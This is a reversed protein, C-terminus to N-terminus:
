DLACFALMALTLLVSVGFSCAVLLRLAMPLRRWEIKFVSGRFLILGSLLAGLPSLCGTACLFFLAIVSNRATTYETGEYERDLFEQRTVAEKTSFLSGCFRCKLASSKITRGCAPCRKEHGWAESEGQAPTAPIHNRPAGPCGYQSCGGNEKWCEEHFPLGCDPCGREPEGFLIQSQCISCTKLVQSDPEAGPVPNSM